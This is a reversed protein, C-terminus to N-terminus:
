SLSEGEQTLNKLWKYKYYHHFVFPLKIIEDLNLIFYVALVPLNWTFAALAGLPVTVAWLSISDSFMGFKSDGGAPFIGALTMMNISKGIVYYSSIVLMWKLYMEANDTLGAFHLIFPTIALIVLGTAIGALVSIRLLRGGYERAKSFDNRGLENGILISGGGGFGTCFCIVLNKVINAISNAAVADTGMHGMIVSYMSFGCGWALETFMFQGTYKWFIKRFSPIGRLLATKSVRIGNRGFSALIVWTVEIVRALVTAYAAGRIGLAPFGLLGFILIANVVINLFVSVANVITSLKARDSNKMICLYMQSIGTLFYSLSVAQLYESGYEILAPENTLFGMIVGPAFGAALSFVLSIMGSIRLSFGLIESLAKRDGKGWYQAAFMNCGVNLATLFLNQVFTFQGALSVASMSDQSLAGLMVADTASVLALMFQQLAIPFVLAMLKQKLDGTEKM